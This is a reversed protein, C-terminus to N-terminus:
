LLGETHRGRLVREGLLVCFSRNDATAAAAAKRVSLASLVDSWLSVPVSESANEEVSESNDWSIPGMTVGCVESKM